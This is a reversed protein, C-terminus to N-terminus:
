HRLSNDRISCVHFLSQKTILPMDLREKKDKTVMVHQQFATCFKSYNNSVCIWYDELCPHFLLPFCQKTCLQIHQATQTLITYRYKIKIYKYWPSEDGWCWWSSLLIWPTWRDMIYSFSPDISLSLSQKPKHLGFKPKTHTHLSLLANLSYAIFINKWLYVAIYKM